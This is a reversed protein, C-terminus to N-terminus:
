PRKALAIFAADEVPKPVQVTVMKSKATSNPRYLAVARDLDNSTLVWERRTPDDYQRM